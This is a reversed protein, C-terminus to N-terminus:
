VINELQEGSESPGPPGCPCGWEQLSPGSRGVGSLGGPETTKESHRAWLAKTQVDCSRSLQTSGRERQGHLNQCQCRAQDPEQTESPWDVQRPTGAESELGSEGNTGRHGETGQLCETKGAKSKAKKVDTGEQPEPRCSEQCKRSQM